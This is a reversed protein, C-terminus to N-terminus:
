QVTIRMDPNHKLGRRVFNESGPDPLWIPSLTLVDIKGEKLLRKAENKDDAVDWHQIVKSGGIRASGGGEFGEIGAGKVLEPFMVYVYAHFSHGCTFMRLSKDIPPRLKAPEDAHASAAAIAVVSAAVLTHFRLSLVAINSPMALVPAAPTHTSALVPTVAEVLRSLDM